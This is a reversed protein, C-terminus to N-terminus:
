QQGFVIIMYLIFHLKYARVPSPTIHEILLYKIKQLAYVHIIFM